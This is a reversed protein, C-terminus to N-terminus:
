VPIMVLSRMKLNEEDECSLHLFLSVINGRVKYGQGEVEQKLRRIKDVFEDSNTIIVFNMINGTILIDDERAYKRNVSNVSAISEYDCNSNLTMGLPFEFLDNSEKGRKIARTIEMGYGERGKLSEKEFPLRRFYKKEYSFIPSGFNFDESAIGALGRILEKTYFQAYATEELKEYIIKEQTKFAQLRKVLFNEDVKCGVYDTRIQEISFGAEKLCRVNILAAVQTVGYYKYKNEKVYEPKILGHREYFNLANRTIGGAKILEGSSLLHKRMDETEFENSVYSNNELKKVERAKGIVKKVPAFILRDGHRKGESDFAFINTIVYVDNILEYGESTMVDRIEDCAQMATSVNGLRRVVICDTENMDSFSSDANGLTYSSIAHVINRGDYFAEGDFHTVIPFARDRLTGYKENAYKNIESYYGASRMYQPKDLYKTKLGGQLTFKTIAPKAGLTYRDFVETIYAMKAIYRYTKRLELYRLNFQKKMERLKEIRKRYAEQISDNADGEIFEKIEELSIGAVQYNKILIITYWQFPHYYRDGRANTKIPKLLGINDYHILTNRTVNALQMFEGTVLLGQMNNEGQYNVM